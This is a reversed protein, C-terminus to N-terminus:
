ICSSIPSYVCVILLPFICKDLAILMATGQLQVLVVKDLNINMLSIKTAAKLTKLDFLLSDMSTNSNEHVSDSHCVNDIYSKM